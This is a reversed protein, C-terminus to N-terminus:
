GPFCLLAQSLLDYKDDHKQMKPFYLIPSWADFLSRVFVDAHLM